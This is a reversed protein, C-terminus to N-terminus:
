FMLQHLPQESVPVLILSTESVAQFVPNTPVCTQSSM